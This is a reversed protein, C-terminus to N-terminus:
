LCGEADRRVEEAHEEILERLMSKGETKLSGTLHKVLDVPMPRIIIQGDTVSMVVRQGPQLGITRRIEVPIVVQGKQGVTAHSGAVEPLASPLHRTSRISEPTTTAM